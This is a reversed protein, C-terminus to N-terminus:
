HPRQPRAPHTRAPAAAPGASRGPLSPRRASRGYSRSRQPRPLLSRRPPRVRRTAATRPQTRSWPAHDGGLRVAPHAPGSPGTPTGAATPTRGWRPGPLCRASGARQRWCQSRRPHTTPRGPSSGPVEDKDALHRSGSHALGKGCTVSSRLPGLYANLRAVPIREDTTVNRCSTWRVERASPIGGHRVAASRSQPRGIQQGVSARHQDPNRRRTV